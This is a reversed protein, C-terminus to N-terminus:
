IAPLCAQVEWGATVLKALLYLCNREIWVIGRPGSDDANTVWLAFYLFIKSTTESRQVAM